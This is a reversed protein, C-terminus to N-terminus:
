YWVERPSPLCKKGVVKSNGKRGKGDPCPCWLWQRGDDVVVVVVFDVNSRSGEATGLQRRQLIKGVVLM